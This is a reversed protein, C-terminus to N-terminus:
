NPHLHNENVMSRVRDRRVIGKYLLFSGLIIGTLIGGFVLGFNGSVLGFVIRATGELMLLIGIVILAIAGKM